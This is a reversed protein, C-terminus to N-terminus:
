TYTPGPKTLIVSVPRSPGAAAAAQEGSRQRQPPRRDEEEAGADVARGGAPWDGTRRRWQFGSGLNSPSLSLSLSGAPLLFNGPFKRYARSEAGKRGM